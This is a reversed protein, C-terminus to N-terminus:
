DRPAYIRMFQDVCRAIHAKQEKATLKGRLGLLRDFEFYGRVLHMFEAAGREPDDLHLAGRAIQEAMFGTLIELTAAPGTEHFMRAIKPHAASEAIVLRYMALVDDDMLLELYREGVHGLTERVDRGDMELFEGLQYQAVKGRVCTELLAEKSSFHSYVTQKSVGAEAAVADMSTRQLGDRLFLRAAADRIAQGKEASKPRGPRAASDRTLNM